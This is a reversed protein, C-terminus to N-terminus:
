CRAEEYTTCSVGLRRLTSSSSQQNSCCTCQNASCTYYPEQPGVSTCFADSCLLAPSTPGKALGLVLGLVLAAIALCVILFCFGGRRAQVDEQQQEARTAM